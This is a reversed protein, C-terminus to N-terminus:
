VIDVKPINMQMPSSYEFNIIQDTKEQILKQLAYYRKPFTSQELFYIRGFYVTLELSQDPNENLDDSQKMFSIMKTLIRSRDYHVALENKTRVCYLNKTINYFLIDSKSQIAIPSDAAIIFNFYTQDTSISNQSQFSSTASESSSFNNLNKSDDSSPSIKM